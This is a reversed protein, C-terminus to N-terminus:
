ARYFDVTRLPGFALSLDDENPNFGLQRLANRNIDDELARFQDTRLLEMAATMLQGWRESRLPSRPHRREAWHREQQSHTAARTGAQHEETSQLGNTRRPPAVTGATRTRTRADPPVRLRGGRWEQANLDLRQARHPDKQQALPQCGPDAPAGSAIGM